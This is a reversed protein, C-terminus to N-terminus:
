APLLRKKQTDMCLALRGAPCQGSARPSVLIMIPFAPQFQQDPAQRLPELARNAPQALWGRPPQAYGRARQQDDAADEADKRDQAEPHQREAEHQQRFVERRHPAAGIGDQGPDLITPRM